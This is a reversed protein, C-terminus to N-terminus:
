VQRILILVVHPQDSILASLLMIFNVLLPRQTCPM